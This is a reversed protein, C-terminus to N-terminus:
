AISRVAGPVQPLGTDASRMAAFVVELSRLNNRASNSPERDEEIACLLEGMTGRMGDCIWKGELKALCSGRSTWLAVEDSATVGGVSRATGRTGVVTNSEMSGGFRNLGSFSLTAVGDEFEVTANALLPPKVPQGKAHKATAFVKIAKRGPFFTVAADFWHVAFDYLLLHHVEEFESGQVWTHDWQVIADYSLIEGLWGTRMAEQMYRFYPAWRGNQNVALKVGKQDALDVLRHGVELDLVFPKQSLVHKGANIADEIIRVRVEPHTAIDLVEIDDRALVERYDRYVDAQPAYADRRQKAREEVLDCFAAMEYGDKAYANLHHETIGGCAILGIKPRYRKPQSPRYDLDPVPMEAPNRVSELGYTSETTEETASM